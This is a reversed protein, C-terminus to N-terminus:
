DLEDVCVTNIAVKNPNRHTTARLGKDATMSQYSQPLEVSRSALSTMAITREM